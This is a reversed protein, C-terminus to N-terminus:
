EISWIGVGVYEEADVQIHRFSLTEVLTNILEVHPIPRFTDTAEPTAINALEERTMKKPALVAM